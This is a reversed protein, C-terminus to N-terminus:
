VSMLNLYFSLLLERPIFRFIGLSVLKEEVAFHQLSFSNWNFNCLLLISNMLQRLIYNFNLSNFKNNKKRNNPICLKVSDTSVHM